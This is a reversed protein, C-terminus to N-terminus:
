ENWGGLAGVEGRPAGQHPGVCLHAQHDDAPSGHLSHSGLPPLPSGELRGGATTRPLKSILIRPSKITQEDVIM